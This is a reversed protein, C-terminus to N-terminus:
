SHHSRKEEATLAIHHWRGPTVWRFVTLGPRKCWCTETCGCRLRPGGIGLADAARTGVALLLVGAVGALLIRRMGALKVVRHEKLVQVTCPDISVTRSRGGKTTGETRQGGILASSGTIRIEGHDLDVHGWRLYLLEGRRAGTYAALHYFAHLRHDSALQLFIRLQRPTWVEGLERGAGRPRKAREAPNSALV